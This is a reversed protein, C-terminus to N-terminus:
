EEENDANEKQVSQNMSENVIATILEQKRLKSHKIDLENAVERLEKVTQGSLHEELEAFRETVEVIRIAGSSLYSGLNKWGAAEPVPDGYERYDGNGIKLRKGAVYHQQKSM